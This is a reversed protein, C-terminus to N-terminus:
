RPRATAPTVPAARAVGAGLGRLLDDVPEREPADIGQERDPDGRDEGHEAQDVERVALDQHERSDIIDQEALSRPHGHCDNM